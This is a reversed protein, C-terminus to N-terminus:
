REKFVYGYSPHTILYYDFCRRIFVDLLRHNVLYRFTNPELAKLIDVRTIKREELKLM